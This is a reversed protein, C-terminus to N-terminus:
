ERWLNGGGDADLNYYKPYSMANRYIVLVLVLCFLANFKPVAESSIGGYQEGWGTSPTGWEEACSVLCLGVGGGPNSLDFQNQTLDGGTNTIQILHKKGALDGHFSLLM